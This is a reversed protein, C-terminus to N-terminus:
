KLSPNLTTVSSWRFRARYVWKTTKKKANALPQFVFVTCYFYLWVTLNCQLDADILRYKKFKDYQMYM